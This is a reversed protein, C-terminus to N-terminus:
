ARQEGGRNYLVTGTNTELLVCYSCEVAPDDLALAAPAFASLLLACLLFTSLFRIKKM